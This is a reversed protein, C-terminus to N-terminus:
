RSTNIDVNMSLGVRLPHEALEKPDLSIRVPLRQVVKIWNGTANQAPVVAFVAGTGGSFGVVRGHYRVRGGYLDSTLTAPQGPRVKALQVEKFNADVYASGIPAIVMLTQGSQVKQGVQVDRRSIVGDIPARIVMRSLDVEAQDRVARAELVEPNGEVSADKLLVDTAERTERAVGQNANALVLAAEAAKVNASATTFANQATTIEEGSVSGTSALDQRRSLDIRARELDGKAAVLQAAARSQEARRAAIQAALGSDTAELGQVKRVANALEAQAKAYAIKADTDDLEVLVDGRSVWQTDNVRVAKVPGGVLPTVQAMDAGVYANDTKVHSDAWLVEYGAYASAVIMAGAGLWAFLLRRRKKRVMDATEVPDDSLTRFPIDDIYVTESVLKRRELVTM